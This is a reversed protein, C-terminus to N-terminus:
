DGRGSVVVVFFRWVFWGWLCGSLFGKFLNRFFGEIVSSFSFCDWRYDLLLEVVNEM